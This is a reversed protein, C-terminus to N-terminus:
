ATALNFVAEMSIANVREVHTALSVPCLFLEAKLNAGMMIIIDM